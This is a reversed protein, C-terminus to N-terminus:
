FSPGFSILLGLGERSRALELRTITAAPTHVSFGVGYSARLDRASFDEVRRTVQGADVFLSMDVLPGAMWRYEATMLLRNRDRFRWSSYGRLADHGGLSPMLFYPVDQGDAAFTTSATGRLAIVSSQNFLPVFQQVEVDARRFDRGSGSTQRYDAVAARYLGGSRTYGPSTRSDIQAFAQARGYTVDFSDLSLAATDSEADAGTQLFDFGGGVSLAHTARVTATAGVTTEDYGFTRRDARRSSNGLGYFAVRPAHLRQGHM